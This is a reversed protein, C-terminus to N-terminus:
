CESFYFLLRQIGTALHERYIVKLKELEKKELLSIMTYHQDQLTEYYQSRINKERKVISLMYGLRVEESYIRELITDLYRNDAARAMTKHFEANLNAFLYMQEEQIAEQMQDYIVQLEVIIESFDDEPNILEFILSGMHSILSLLDKASKLSLDKIYTANSGYSIVLGESILIRLAERIPTRGIGLKEVLDLEEIKTGPPIKMGVIQQKLLDYAKDVLTIKGKQKPKQKPQRKISKRTYVKQV